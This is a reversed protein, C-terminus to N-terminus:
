SSAGEIPRLDPRNHRDVPTPVTVIYFNCARLDSLDCSYALRKASKLEKPEVELTSDRGAKLEEVRPAKIDFGVTAFRKGFEVALPLGVYGLGLVGIKTNKLSFANSAKRPASKAM